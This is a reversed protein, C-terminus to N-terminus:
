MIHQRVCFHLSLGAREAEAEPLIEGSNDTSRYIKTTISSEPLQEDDLNSNSDMSQLGNM